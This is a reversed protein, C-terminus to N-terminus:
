GDAFLAFKGPGDTSSADLWGNYLSCQFNDFVPLWLHEFEADAFFIIKCLNTEGASAGDLNKDFPEVPLVHLVHLVHLVFIGTLLV